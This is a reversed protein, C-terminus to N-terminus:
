YRSNKGFSNSLSDTNYGGSWVRSRALNIVDRTNYSHGDFFWTSVEKRLIDLFSQDIRYLKLTNESETRRFMAIAYPLYQVSLRCAETTKELQRVTYEDLAGYRHVLAPAMIYIYKKVIRKKLYRNLIEM